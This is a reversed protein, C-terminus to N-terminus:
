RPFDSENANLSRQLARIYHVIAWRDDTPIQKAYSPMINQGNTIVHFINGDNWNKVKDTHLSPPNPYQNNLRSDGKGYNGHCPSCFTNYKKKGTELIEIDLGVPNTLHKESTDNLGTYEYPLFGRAITGEVPNRMGSGDKFIESRSQATLKPQKSMWDFPPAYILKNLAIYSILATLVAIVILFSIFKFDFIPTKIKNEDFDYYNIRSIEFSGLERFLKEVEEINFKSDTAQIIVGFKDSSVRKMYETDIIPNNNWPLKNFFFLMVIITFLAGFLVTLEFMIPISPPLSFFPKGGIINRYDLGSMYVIMILAIIIGILGSIFTFYGLKTQRLKMADDMGHVPYPTHVDYKKYGSATVKAAAMIIEDPTNFLASIAYIKESRNQLGLDKNLVSIKNKFRKVM